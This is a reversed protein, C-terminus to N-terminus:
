KKSCLGLLQGNESDLNDTYAHKNRNSGGLTPNTVHINRKFPQINGNNASFPILSTISSGVLLWITSNVNRM